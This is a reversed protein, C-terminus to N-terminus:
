IFDIFNVYLNVDISGRVVETQLLQWLWVTKGEANGRSIRPRRIAPKSKKKNGLLSILDPM